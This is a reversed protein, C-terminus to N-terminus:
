QFIKYARNDLIYGSNSWKKGHDQNSGKDLSGDNIETAAYGRAPKELEVKPGGSAM